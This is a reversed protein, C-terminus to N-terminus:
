VAHRHRHLRPVGGQLLSVASALSSRLAPVFQAADV